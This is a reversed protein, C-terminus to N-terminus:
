SQVMAQVSVSLSGGSFQSGQLGYLYLEGLSAWAIPYNSVVIDNGMMVTLNGNPSPAIEPDIASPPGSSSFRITLNAGGGWGPVTSNYLLLGYTHPWNQAFYEVRVLGDSREQVIIAPISLSENPYKPALAVQAETMPSASAFTLSSRITAQWSGRYDQLLLAETDNSIPQNFVRYTFALTQPSGEPRLPGRSAGRDVLPFVIFASEVLVVTLLLAVLVTLRNLVIRIQIAQNIQQGTCPRARRM